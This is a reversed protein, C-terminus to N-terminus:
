GTREEELLSRVSIREATALFEALLDIAEEVEEPRPLHVTRRVAAALEEGLITFEREVEGATWGLRARQRGHRDAITRQIATGDRLAESEAGSTLDMGGLTQALDALFSALHDELQAESLSRARPIAPDGHLRAVYARLIREMEGLVADRFPRLTAPAM